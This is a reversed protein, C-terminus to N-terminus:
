SISERKRIKKGGLPRRRGRGTVNKKKKNRSRHVSTRLANTRQSNKLPKKNEIREGKEYEKSKKQSERKGAKFKEGRNQVGTELSRGAYSKKKKRRFPIV